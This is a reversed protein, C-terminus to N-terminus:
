PFQIESYMKKVVENSILLPYMQDTVLFGAMIVDFTFTKLNSLISTRDAQFGAQGLRLM